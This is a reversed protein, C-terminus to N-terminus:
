WYPMIMVYDFQILLKSYLYTEVHSIAKVAAKLYNLIATISLRYKLVLVQAVHCKTKIALGVYTPRSSVTIKDHDNFYCINVICTHAL